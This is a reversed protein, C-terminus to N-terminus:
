FQYSGISTERLLGQAKLELQNELLGVVSEIFYGRCPNFMFLESHLGTSMLVMSFLESPTSGSGDYLIEDVEFLRDQDIPPVYYIRYKSTTLVCQWHALFISIARLKRRGKDQFM